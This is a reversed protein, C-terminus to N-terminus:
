FLALVKSGNRRNSDIPALKKGCALCCGLILKSSSKVYNNNQDAINNGDFSYQSFDFQNYNYKYKNM